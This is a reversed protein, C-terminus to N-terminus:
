LARDEDDQAGFRREFLWLAGQWDGYAFGAARFADRLWDIEPIFARVRDAGLRSAHVRLAKLLASVATPEGDTLGITLRADEADYGTIALAAMQGDPALQAAILRGQLSEAVREATLEQWEWSLGYVGHCFALVPSAHLFADVQARDDPTLFAPPLGEPLPEAVWSVYVGIREMGARGVAIHVPTNSDATSLRVTRAGQGRAYALSYELFRSAIGQRRFRPDVRMGQLWGQDATQFTIKNLAV